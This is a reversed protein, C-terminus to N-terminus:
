ENNIEITKKSAINDVECTLIVEKLGIEKAKQLALNLIQTGYSKNRYYPSIDYGIHGYLEKEEHRVRVVGIVVNNGIMWFTSTKVM